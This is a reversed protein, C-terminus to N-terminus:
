DGDGAGVYVVGDAIAASSEITEGAQYTWKLSLTQPVDSAAVGTMQPTGRFQPWSASPSPQAARAVALREPVFVVFFVFGVFLVVWYNKTPKTIKTIKTGSRLGTPRKSPM